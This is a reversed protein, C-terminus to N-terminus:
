TGISGLYFFYLRFWNLCSNRIIRSFFTRANLLLLSVKLGPIWVVGSSNFVCSKSKCNLRGDVGIRWSFSVKRFARRLPPKIHSKIHVPFSKSFQSNILLGLDGFPQHLQQRKLNIQALTFPFCKIQKQLWLVTKLNRRCLTSVIFFFMSNRKLTKLHLTTRICWLASNLTLVGNEFIETTPDVSNMLPM